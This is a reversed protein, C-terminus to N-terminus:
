SCNPATAVMPSPPMHVTAGGGSKLLDSLGIIGIIGMVNSGGGGLNESWGVARNMCLIHKRVGVVKEENCPESGLAAVHRPFSCDLLDFNFM